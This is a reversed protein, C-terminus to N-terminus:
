RNQSNLTRCFEGPNDTAVLLTDYTLDNGFMRHVAVKERLQVKVAPTGHTTLCGFRKRETRSLDEHFPAASVVLAPDFDCAALMGIRLLVHKEDILHPRAQFTAYLGFAWLLAWLDLAIVGIRIWAAQHRLLVGLVIEDGISVVPILLPLMRVTSQQAYSFGTVPIARFGRAAWCIGAWLTLLECALFAAISEPLFLSFVRQYHIEKPTGDADATLQRVQKVAFAIVLIEFTFVAILMGARNTQGLSIRLLEIFIIAPLFIRGAPLEKRAVLICTHVLKLGSAGMGVFAALRSGPIGRILKKGAFIRTAIASGAALGVIPNVVSKRKPLVSAASLM